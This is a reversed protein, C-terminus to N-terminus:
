FREPGASYNHCAWKPDNSKKMGPNGPAAFITETHASQALKWVLAHERGGSGLVLIKM